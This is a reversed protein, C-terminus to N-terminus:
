YKKSSYEPNLELKGYPNFKLLSGLKSPSSLNGDIEVSVMTDIFNEQDIKETFLPNNNFTGIQKM